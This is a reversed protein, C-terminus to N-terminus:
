AETGNSGWIFAPWARGIANYWFLSWELNKNEYV